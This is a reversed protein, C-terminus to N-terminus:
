RWNDKVWNDHVDKNRPKGHFLVVKSNQPLGKQCNNKYSVVGEFFDQLVRIDVGKKILWSSSYEQEGKFKPILAKSFDEYIGEWNGNWLMIGSSWRTGRRIARPQPRCMYFSNDPCTLALEGLRDISDVIVTDLGTAIVPGSIRFMEIVAWWGPWDTKLPIYGPVNINDSLCVFRHPLHLHRTIMSRMKEVYSIDYDGGSRLVVLFTLM